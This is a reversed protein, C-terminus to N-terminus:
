VKEYPHADGPRENAHQWPSPALTTAWMVIYSQMDRILHDMVVSYGWYWMFIGQVELLLVFLQFCFRLGVM